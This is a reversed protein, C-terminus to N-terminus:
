TRNHVALQRSLSPSPVAAAHSRVGPPGSPCNPLPRGQQDKERGVGKMLAALCKHRALANLPAHACTHCAQGPSSLEGVGVGGWGDEGKPHLWPDDAHSLPRCTALPQVKDERSGMGWRGKRPWLLVVLAKHTHVRTYTHQASSSGATNRSPSHTHPPGTHTYVPSHTIGPTCVRLPCWPVHLSSHTRAHRHSVQFVPHTHM